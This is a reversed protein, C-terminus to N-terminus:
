NVIAKELTEILAIILGDSTECKTSNKYYLSTDHMIGVGFIRIDSAEIRRSVEQIHRHLLSPENETLTADDVPAGDSVVVIAKRQARTAAMREAAWEVAEGDINEKMLGPRLMPKYRSGCSSGGEEDFSRYVIHLIDCLRGPAPPRGNKKWLTRSKGGRWTSTTFGLIETKIGLDVLFNEAIYCAAALTLVGNRINNLSGSQDVLITIAIDAFEDRNKTSRLRSTTEIVTSHAESGWAPLAACFTRWTNEHMDADYLHLEGLQSDLKTAEVVADFERTYVHYPHITRRDRTHFISTFPNKAIEFM